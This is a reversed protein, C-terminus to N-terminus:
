NKHNDLDHRSVTIVSLMRLAIAVHSVHDELSKSYILIDDFFVLIFKRLYPKFISNMLSQFTSPANTLGFPMVLFEYHGEHTKFATKHVDDVEMRIQHYGSRLDIKSFLVAGKLEDLLEEILPIPFKDKVTQRNLARYDICMRWSNDKKKMLVMPSSFSSTSNQIVGSEMMEQVMNEIIDKQVPGYRYPRCNVAQTGEKMVIKHDHSRCPPLGNPM